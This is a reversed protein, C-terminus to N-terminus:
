LAEPAPIEDEDVGINEIEKQSDMTLTMIEIKEGKSTIDVAAKESWKMRNNMYYKILAADGKEIQRMLSVSCKMDCLAKGTEIEKRYHKYLTPISVGVLAAIDELGMDAGRGIIVRSRDLDNPIHEPRGNKKPPVGKKRRAM